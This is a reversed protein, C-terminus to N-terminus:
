SLCLLVVTAPLRKVDDLAILLILYVAPYIHTLYLRYCLSDFFLLLQKWSLIVPVPWDPELNLVLSPVLYLLQLEDPM